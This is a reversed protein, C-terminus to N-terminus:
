VAVLSEREAYVTDSVPNGANIEEQVMDAWTNLYLVVDKKVNHKLYTGQPLRALIQSNNLRELQKLDTHNFGFDLLEDIVDDFPLGTSPCYDNLQDNWDGVGTLALKHIEHKTRQTILQALNGCNCSGMHGWMYDTSAAIKDATQHLITVIPAIAKAM